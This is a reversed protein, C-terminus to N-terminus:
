ENSKGREFLKIPDVKNGDIYVSLHLHPGTSRGTTGVKGIVDYQSVMDGTKVNISEMHAYFTQFENSHSVLVCNGYGDGFDGAKIMSCIEDKIFKKSKLFYIENEVCKSNYRNQFLHGVRDYKKNFYLTFNINRKM